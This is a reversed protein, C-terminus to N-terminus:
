PMPTTDNHAPALKPKKGKTSGTKRNNAAPRNASKKQPREDGAEKSQNTPDASAPTHNQEEAADSIAMFAQAMLATFIGLDPVMEYDANLGVHLKGDYSMLAIGLGTGDMLPVLPHIELLKAGLLYLPFQPGAVNTVIMNIPGSAARAALGMWSPPLYEATAMVMDIALAQRSKKLESTIKNIRSIWALPNSEDLPLAIIWASVRNGMKGKEHERRVNVPASVRFDVQDPDVGRHILYQRIAGSVTALVVDNLTCGLGNKVRKVDSLPLTLWDVRRHPSLPGNIPTGSSPALGWGALDTVAKIRTTIEELVDPSEEKFQNLESVLKIPLAMRRQVADWLLEKGTPSPRPRFPRPDQSEHEPSPSMLIQAVDAGSQGDVMCHHIKTILAFRDEALGEIVWMEWLPRTRDLRRTTIRAALKKLEEIGGPQPLAAHRVHYDINFHEDDVWVPRQEIPVWQLKQRYRPIRHLQAMLARKLKRIDVGGHPGALDCTQYVGIAAVHMPVHDAEVVLFSHDQASLRDYMYSSM